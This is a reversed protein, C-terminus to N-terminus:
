FIEKKSVKETNEYGSVYFDNNADYTYSTGNLQM